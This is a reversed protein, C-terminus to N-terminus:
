KGRAFTELIEAAAKDGRQAASRLEQNASIIAGSVAQRQEPTLDPRGAIQRLGLFAPIAQGSNLSATAEEALKKVEPPAKAFADKV